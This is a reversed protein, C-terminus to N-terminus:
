MWGGVPLPMQRYGGGSGRTFRGGGIGEIGKLTDVVPRDGRGHSGNRWRNGRRGLHADGNLVGV